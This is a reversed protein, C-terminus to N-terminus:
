LGSSAPESGDSEPEPPVLSQGAKEELCRAFGSGCGRSECYHRVSLEAEDYRASNVCTKLKELDGIDVRGRSCAQEFRCTQVYQHRNPRITVREFLCSDFAECNDAQGCAERARVESGRGANEVCRATCPAVSRSQCDGHRKCVEECRATLAQREALQGTRALVCQSFQRGCGVTECALIAEIERDDYKCERTCRMLALLDTPDGECTLEHKCVSACRTVRARPVGMRRLICSDYEDCSKVGCRERAIYERRYSRNACREMCREGGSNQTCEEAKECLTRCRQEARMEATVVVPRSAEAAEAAQREKFRVCAEFATGCLGGCESITALKASPYPCNRACQVLENLSPDRDQCIFDHRCAPVCQYAIGRVRLRGFVCQDYDDCSRPNCRARIRFERTNESDACRAECTDQDEQLSECERAKECSAQCRQQARTLPPPAEPVPETVVVPAPPPPPPVVPIVPTAVPQSTMPQPQPQVTPPTSPVAVPPPAVPPPPPAVPPPTPAVPPPTPAMAVPPPTVPPPAVPTTAVPPPALLRHVCSTFGHGCAQEQCSRMARFEPTRPRCERSCAAVATYSVFAQGQCIQGKRCVPACVLQARPVRMRRLVCREFPDGCSRERCHKVAAFEAEFSADSMCRTLCTGGAAEPSCEGLKTCAAECRARRPDVPPAAPRATPGSGLQAALCSQFRSGCSRRRCRDIARYGRSLEPDNSQVQVLCGGACQNLLAVNESQGACSLQKSCTRYCFAQHGGLKEAVCSVMRTGCGTCQAEALLPASESANQISVLCPNMCQSFAGLSSVSACELRQECIKGCTAMVGGQRRALCVETPIGCEQARCDDYADERALVQPNGSELGAVCGALCQGSIQQNGGQGACQLRKTCNRACTREAPSQQAMTRAVCQGFPPGCPSSVCAANARWAKTIQPNRQLLQQQCHSTCRVMEAQNDALGACALTKFCVDVCLKTEVPTLTGGPPDANAVGSLVLVVVLIADSFRCRSMM